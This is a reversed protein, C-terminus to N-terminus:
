SSSPGWALPSIHSTGQLSRYRQYVCIYIYVYKIRGHDTPTEHQQNPAEHKRNFRDYSDGM